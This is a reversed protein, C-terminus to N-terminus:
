VRGGADKPSSSPLNLVESPSKALGGSISEASDTTTISLFPMLVDVAASVSRVRPSAARTAIASSMGKWEVVVVSKFSLIPSLSAFLGLSTSLGGLEDGM